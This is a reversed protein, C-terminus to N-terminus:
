KVMRVMGHGLWVQFVVLFFLYKRVNTQRTQILGFVMKLYEKQGVKGQQVTGNEIKEQCVYAKFQNPQLRTKTNLVLKPIFSKSYFCNLKNTKIDLDTKVKYKQKMSQVWIQM